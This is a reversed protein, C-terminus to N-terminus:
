EKKVFPPSWDKKIEFLKKAEIMATTPVPEFYCPLVEHPMAYFPLVGNLAGPNDNRGSGHASSNNNSDDDSSSNSSSVINRRKKESEEKYFADFEWGVKPEWGKASQMAHLMKEDLGPAILFNCEFRRLRSFERLSRGGSFPLSKDNKHDRFQDNSCIWADKAKAEAIITLDDDGGEKREVLQIKGEDVLAKLKENVWIGNQLYKVHETNVTALGGGDCLNPLEGIVYEKPLYAIVKHNSWHEYNLAEIIGASLPFQRCKFKKRLLAGRQWAINAGDLFINLSKNEERMEEDIIDTWNFILALDLAWPTYPKNSNDIVKKNSRMRNKNNPHAFLKMPAKRKQLANKTNHQHRYNSTIQSSSLSSSSSSSIVREFHSQGCPPSFMSKAREYYSEKRSRQDALLHSGRTKSTCEKTELKIKQRSDM